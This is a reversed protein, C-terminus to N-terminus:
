RTTETDLTIPGEIPSYVSETTTTVAGVTRTIDKYLELEYYGTKWTLDTFDIADFYLTVLHTSADIGILGNESTMSFLITKGNKKERIQLRAKYGTLDMPPDYQLYGGSTYTKFGAANVDNFEIYDADIVTAPHYDSERLKNPEGNIETMGRLNTVAAPWGDLLGHGVAKLRLPATQTAETIAKYVIPEAEACRVVFPQTKGQQLAIPTLKETTM